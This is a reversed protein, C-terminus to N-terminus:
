GVLRSPHDALISPWPVIVEGSSGAAGTERVALRGTGTHIGAALPLPLAPQSATPGHAPVRNTQEDSVVSAGLAVTGILSMLAGLREHLRSAQVPSFRRSCPASTLGHRSSLGISDLNLSVLQAAFTFAMLM